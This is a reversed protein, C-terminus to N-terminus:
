EKWITKDKIPTRQSQKKNTVSYGLWFIGIVSSNQEFGLFNHMLKTRTITSSSWHASIGLSQATLLLNQCACGVALLDEEQKIPDANKKCAIAIYIPVQAMKLKKEKWLAIKEPLATERLAFEWKELFLGRQNPMIVCFSWPQTLYHNPAWTASYLLQEIIQKDIPKDLFNKNDRRALIAKAIPNKPM